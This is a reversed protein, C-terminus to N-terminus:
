SLRVCCTYLFLLILCRPPHCVEIPPAFISVFDAVWADNTGAAAARGAFCEAVESALTVAPLIGGEEEPPCLQRSVLTARMAKLVEWNGSVASDQFRRVSSAVLKAAEPADPLSGCYLLVRSYLETPLLLDGGSSGVLCGPYWPNPVDPRYETLCSERLVARRLVEKAHERMTARTFSAATVPLCQRLVSEFAFLRPTVAAMSYTATQMSWLISLDLSQFFTAAFTASDAGGHPVLAGAGHSHLGYHTCSIFQSVPVRPDHHILEGVSLSPRCLQLLFYAEAVEAALGSVASRGAATGHSASAFLRGLVAQAYEVVDRVAVGALLRTLGTAATWAAFEAKTAGVLPTGPVRPWGLEGVLAAESLFRTAAQTSVLAVQMAAFNCRALRRTSSSWESQQGCSRAWAYVCTVADTLASPYATWSALCGCVGIGALAWETVSLVSPVAAASVPGSGALSGPLPDRRLQPRAAVAAAVADCAFRHAIAQRRAADVPSPGELFRAFWDFLEAERLFDLEAPTPHRYYMPATQGRFEASVRPHPTARALHALRCPFMVCEGAPAALGDADADVIKTWDLPTTARGDWEKPKCATCYLKGDPGLEFACSIGPCVSAGQDTLVGKNSCHYTNRGGQRGRASTSVAARPMTYASGAKHKLTVRGTGSAQELALPWKPIRKGGKSKKKNGGKGKKKCSAAEGYAEDDDNDSAAAAVAVPVRRGTQPVETLPTVFRLVRSDALLQINITFLGSGM